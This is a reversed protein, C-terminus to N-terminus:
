LRPLKQKLKFFGAWPDRKLYALRQRLNEITFHAPGIAASLESWDLPTSVAAGPRARTSYAAVATQGRGNRLYDVFIRNRRLSKTMRSVYRGPNDAAMQEAFAKTFDKVSEWSPGTAIPTVVHLGKGGSNKVFSKLKLKKLRDRVEIAADIITQWGVGPGPDLDIIFQDPKEINTIRSGWPHIELVGAQVLAILGELNKIALMPEEDGVDVQILADDMGQWAHKAYFCHKLGGSPCRLLSLVRGTIHPLIWDAIEAYFEALMLKTIGEDPWYVRYKQYLRWCWM